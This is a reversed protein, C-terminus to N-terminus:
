VFAVHRHVGVDPEKEPDLNAKAIEWGFTLLNGTSAWFNCEDPQFRLMTLNPDQKGGEFWAEVVSNWYEDIRRPDPDISIAGRLMAHFDHDKGVVCFLAQAGPTIASVLDTDKSTYFWITKNAIDLNPAMPQLGFSHTELGLMGASVRDLEDWILKEPDSKATSLSVM